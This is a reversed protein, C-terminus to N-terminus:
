ERSCHITYEKLHNYLKDHYKMVWKKAQAELSYLGYQVEGGGGIFQMTVISSCMTGRPVKKLSTARNTKSLFFGSGQPVKLSVVSQPMPKWLTAGVDIFADKYISKSLLVKNRATCDKIWSYDTVQSYIDERETKLIHGLEKGSFVIFFTFWDAHLM